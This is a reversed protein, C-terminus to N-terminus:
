RWTGSWAETAVVGNAIGFEAGYTDITVQVNKHWLIKSLTLYDRPNDCLWAYAFLDRFRHPNVPKNVHRLTLTKVLDTVQDDAFPRGKDNLFLTAPDTQGGLL